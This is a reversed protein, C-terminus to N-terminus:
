GENMVKGMSSANMHHKTSSPDHENEDLQLWIYPMDTPANNHYTITESGDLRQEKTDLTCSIVYDAKQQYYRPGPAGDAGRYENPSRLVQDLQEFKRAHNSREQGSSVQICCIMGVFLLSLYRM